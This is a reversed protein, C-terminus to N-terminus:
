RSRLSEDTVPFCCDFVGAQFVNDSGKRIVEM